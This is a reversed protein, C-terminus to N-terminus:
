LLCITLARIATRCKVTVAYDEINLTVRCGLIFTFANKKSSICKNEIVVHFFGFKIM